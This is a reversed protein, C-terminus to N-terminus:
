TYLNQLEKKLLRQAKQVIEHHDFALPPINALPYWVADHADSGAKPQHENAKIFGYFIVSVTWGRPDRDPASATFLQHLQIGQLDTEEFLERAIADEVTENEEVFGGPFAWKGKYPEIGRQVFLVKLENGSYTFLIADVTLAPHPYSYNYPM